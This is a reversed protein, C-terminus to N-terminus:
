AKGGKVFHVVEKPILGPIYIGRRILTAYVNPDLFEVFCIVFDQYADRIAEGVLTTLVGAKEKASWIPAIEGWIERKEEMYIDSWHRLCITYGALMSETLYTIGGNRWLSVRYGVADVTGIGSSHRLKLDVDAAYLAVDGIQLKREAM